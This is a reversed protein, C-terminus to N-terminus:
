YVNNDLQTQQQYLLIATYGKMNPISNRCEKLGTESNIHLPISTTNLANFTEKMSSNSQLYVKGNIVSNFKTRMLLHEMRGCEQSSLSDKMYRKSIKMMKIKESNKLTNM